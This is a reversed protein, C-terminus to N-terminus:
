VDHLTGYGAIAKKLRFDKGRHKWAEAIADDLVKFAEVILVDLLAWRQEGQGPIDYLPGKKDFFNDKDKGIKKRYEGVREM